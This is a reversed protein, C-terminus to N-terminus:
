KWYGYVVYGVSPYQQPQGLMLVSSSRYLTGSQTNQHRKRIYMDLLVLSAPSDVRTGPFSLLEGYRGHKLFSITEEDLSNREREPTEHSFDVSAIAVCGNLINQEALFQAFAELDDIGAKRSVLVPLILAHPLFHKLYPMQAAFSQDNAIGQADEMGLLPFQKLLIVPLVSGFPTEWVREVTIFPYRGVEMHNPGFLVVCSPSTEGMRNWAAALIPAAVTHHPIVMGVVPSTDGFLKVPHQQGRVFLTKDFHDTIVM